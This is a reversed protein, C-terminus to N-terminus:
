LGSSRTERDWLRQQAPTIEGAAIRKVAEAPTVIEAAAPAGGFDLDNVLAQAARTLDLLAPDKMLVAAQTALAALSRLSPGAKDAKALIDPSAKLLTIIRGITTAM